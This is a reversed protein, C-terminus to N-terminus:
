YDSIITRLLCADIRKQTRPHTFSLLYIMFSEISNFNDILKGFNLDTDINEERHASVLFYKGAQLDHKSLIDSSDIALM